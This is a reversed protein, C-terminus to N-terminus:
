DYTKTIDSNFELEITAGFPPLEVVRLYRATIRLWKGHAPDFVVQVADYPLDLELAECERKIENLLVSDNKERISMNAVARLKEEFKYHEMYPPILLVAFYIVAAVLLLLFIAVLNIKGARRRLHDSVAGLSVPNTHVHAAM